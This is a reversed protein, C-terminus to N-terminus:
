KRAKCAPSAEWTAGTSLNLTTNTAKSAQTNRRSRGAGRSHSPIAMTAAPTTTSAHFGSFYDKGAPQTRGARGRFRPHVVRWVPVFTAIRFFPDPSFRAFHSALVLMRLIIRFLELCEEIVNYAM